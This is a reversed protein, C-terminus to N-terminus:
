EDIIERALHAKDKLTQIIKEDITREAQLDIYTVNDKQGIRHARDESQVRTELSFDNSYYIVTSASVLTLGIGGSEPQGVFFRVRGDSEFVDVAEEREDKNTIGGHYEVVTDDGYAKRLAASIMRIEERFRAWIIVHGSVEEIAEMMSVLRPCRDDIQRTVGEADVTFGGIVQQLRLLLTLANGAKVKTGDEQLLLSWLDAEETVLEHQLIAVSYKELDKYIRAQEKSLEVPRIEFVKDPLDLCESKLVRFSHERITARLEPLNKYGVLAEYYGQRNSKTRRREYEAYRAKFSSFTTYGLIDPDLFKFQSYLDLPGQTVPMGTAIRKYPVHKSITMLAKTRRAGPTKFRTSEDVVLLCRFTNVIKRAFLIGRKSSLAECNMSFVKFAPHERPTFLAELAEREAKKPTAVWYAAVTDIYEPMHVPLERNIWNRHVGNPALVFLMDIEGKNYLWAGNDIGVKTKGTGMDMLWAFATRDRSLEFAERQHNYPETQYVYDTM